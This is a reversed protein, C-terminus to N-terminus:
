LFKLVSLLYKEKMLEQLESGASDCLWTDVEIVMHIHTVSRLPSCFSPKRGEFSREGLSRCLM